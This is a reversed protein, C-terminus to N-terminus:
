SSEDYSLLTGVHESVTPPTEDASRVWKLEDAPDANWTAACAHSSGGLQPTEDALTAHDVEGQQRAEKESKM